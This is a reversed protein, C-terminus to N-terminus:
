RSGDLGRDVRHTVTLYSEACAGGQAHAQLSLPTQPHQLATIRGGSAIKEWRTKMGRAPTASRRGWLHALVRRLTDQLLVRVVRAEEALVAPVQDLAVVPRAGGRRGRGRRIGTFFPFFAPRFRRAAPGGTEPRVTRALLYTTM